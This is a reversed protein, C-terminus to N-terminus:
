MVEVRAHLVDEGRPDKAEALTEVRGDDSRALILSPGEFVNDLVRGVLQPNVVWRVSRLSGLQSFLGESFWQERRLLHEGPANFVWPEDWAWANASPQAMVTVGLADLAPACSAWTPERETHPEAFGDYCILTGLRGFPTEVPGLDTVTGAALHLVDEQTPVLNVKRTVAVCEGSPAFTYSTNYVRADAPAFREAGDGYRNRPLLLSGAVVWLDHERAIRSFTSFYARHMGPSLATLLGPALHRTRGRVMAALLSPLRRFAVRRMAEDTTRCGRLDQGAISLFTGVMEPWVALAPGASGAARRIGSIREALSAHKAAFADASAYDDPMILPQVAFLDLASM